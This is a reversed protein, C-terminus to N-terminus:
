PEVVLGYSQTQFATSAAAVEQTNVNVTNESWQVTITCAIPASSTCAVTASEQPLVSNLAMAWNALDYAALYAASCPAANGSTCSPASSLASSLTADTTSSISGASVITATAPSGAWYERNAHMSSALSAAELAALSRMRATSTGSLALANLKAIGLLGVGMVVLAVLVEVLTFGRQSTVLRPSTM